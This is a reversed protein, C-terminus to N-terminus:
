RRCTNNYPCRDASDEPFRQRHLPFPPRSRLPELLSNPSVASRESTSQEFTMFVYDSTHLDALHAPFSNSWCQDRNRTGRHNRQHVGPGQTKYTRDTNEHLVAVLWQCGRYTSLWWLNVPVIRQCARYTSLWWHNVAVLPQCGRYTSLWRLNVAVLPQCGRAISLWSSNVAVLPQCGRDVLNPM